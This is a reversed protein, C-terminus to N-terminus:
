VGYPDYTVIRCSDSNSGSAQAWFVQGRRALVVNETSWSYGNITVTPWISINGSAVAYVVVWQLDRDVTWQCTSPYGNTRSVPTRGSAFNIALTGSSPDLTVACGWTNTGTSRLSQGTPCNRLGIETGSFRLGGNTFATYTTDDDAACGWTNTGTSKLIEGTPCNQLGIQTGSFRLGGNAFASYTTDNDPACYLSQTTSNWSLKQDSPCSSLNTLGKISVNGNIDFELGAGIRVVYAINNDSRTVTLGNGANFNVTQGNAINRPNVGNASINFNTSGTGTMDLCVFTTGNWSLIPSSADCTPSNIKITHEDNNITLGDSGVTQTYVTNRDVFQIQSPNDGTLDVTYLTTTTNNAMSESFSISLQQDDIDHTCVFKAGDWILKNKVNPNGSEPLADCVPAVIAIKNNNDVTLGNGLSVSLTFPDVATGAGHRTLGSKSGYVGVVENGVIPDYTILKTNVYTIRGFSDVTMYPVSLYGQTTSNDSGNPLKPNNHKTLGDEYPFAYNGAKADSEDLSIKLNNGWRNITLGSGAYLNEVGMINISGEGNKITKPKVINYAYDLGYAKALYGLKSSFNNDNENDDACGIRQDDNLNQWGFLWATIGTSKAPIYYACSVKNYHYPQRLDGSDQTVTPSADPGDITQCYKDVDKIVMEGNDKTCIETYSAKKRAYDPIEWSTKLEYYTEYPDEKTVESITATTDVYYLQNHPSGIDANYSRIRIPIDTPVQQGDENTNLTIDLGTARLTLNVSNTNLNIVIVAAIFTIICLLAVFLHLHKRLFSKEKITNNDEPKTQPRNIREASKTGAFFINQAPNPSPAPKPEPDTMSSSIPVPKTTPTQMSPQEPTSIQTSDNLKNASEQAIPELTLPELSIPEPPKQDIHNIPSITSSPNVATHNNSEPFLEPNMDDLRYQLNEAEDKNMNKDTNKKNRLVSAKVM